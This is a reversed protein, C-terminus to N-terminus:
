DHPIDSSVGASPRRAAEASGFAKDRLWRCHSCFCRETAEDLRRLLVNESATDVFQQLLDVKRDKSLRDLEDSVV